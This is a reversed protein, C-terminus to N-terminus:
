LLKRAINETKDVLLDIDIYNYNKVLTELKGGFMDYLKSDIASFGNLIGVVSGVTACNSDTDYGAEVALGLSREIIGNGYLLAATVIMVNPIVHVAYQRDNEPFIEDIYDMVEGFARGCNYFAVVDKIYKALRCRAPIESIGAKVADEARDACFAAAIMAAAFMEGYVGNKVHSVVADKYALYAAHRPKGPYIYGFIDARIEAGVWERFPNRYKATVVPDMGNLINKYAIREATCTALVPLSDLWIEAVNISTFDKGFKELVSLNLVTYNLDDDWFAYGNFGTKWWFPHLKTNYEKLLKNKLDETFKGDDFYDKIPYNGTEEALCRIAKRSFGEVPKGMECGIIRLYWAGRLKERYTNENINAQRKSEAPPLEKLIDAYEDPESYRYNEQVPCREMKEILDAAGAEDLANFCERYLSVNKGEDRCQKWECDIWESLKLWRRDM